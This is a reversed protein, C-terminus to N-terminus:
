PPPTACPLEQAEPRRMTALRQGIALVAREFLPPNIMQRGIPSLVAGCAILEDLHQRLFYRLSENSRFVHGGYQRRWEDTDMIPLPRPMRAGDDPPAAMTAVEALDDTQM